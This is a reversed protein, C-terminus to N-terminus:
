SEYYFLQHESLNFFKCLKRRTKFHPKNQYGHKEINRIQSLSVGTSDALQKQTLNKWTRYNQVKNKM